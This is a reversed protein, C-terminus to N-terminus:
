RFGLGSPGARTTQDYFLTHVDACWICYVRTMARLLLKDGPIVMAWPILVPWKSIYPGPLLTATPCWHPCKYGKRPLVAQGQSCYPFPGLCLVQSCNPRIDSNVKLWSLEQVDLFGWTHIWILSSQIAKCIDHFFPMLVSKLQLLNVSGCMTKLPMVFFLVNELHCCLGCTDAQERGRSWDWKDGCYMFKNKGM